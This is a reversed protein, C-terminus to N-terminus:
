GPVLGISLPNEMYRREGIVIISQEDEDEDDSSGDSGTTFTAVPGGINGLGKPPLGFRVSSEIGAGTSTNTGVLSFQQLSLIIRSTLICLTISYIPHSNFLNYIYINTSTLGTGFHWSGDRLILMTLTGRFQQKQLEKRIRLTKTLTSTIVVIDWLLLVIPNADPFYLISLIIGQAPTFGKSNETVLSYLPIIQFISIVFPPLALPILWLLDRHRRGLIAWIRLLSFLTANVIVIMDLVDLLESMIIRQRTTTSSSNCEFPWTKSESFCLLNMCVVVYIIGGYRAILFFCGPSWRFQKWISKVEENFTTLYEYFVTTLLIVFTIADVDPFFLTM